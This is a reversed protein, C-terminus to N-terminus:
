LNDAAALEAEKEKESEVRELELDDKDEAICALLEAKFRDVWETHRSIRPDTKLSEWDGSEAAVQILGGQGKEVAGQWLEIAADEPSRGSKIAALFSEIYPGLPMVVKGEPTKVQAAPQSGIPAPAKAVAGAPEAVPSPAVAGAPAKEPVVAPASPPQGVGAQPSGAPAPSAPPLARRSGRGARAGLAAAAGPLVAGALATLVRDLTGSPEVAPGKLDDMLEKLDLMRELPDREDGKFLKAVVALSQADKLIGGSNQAAMMAFMAKVMESQQATAQARAAEVMAESRAARAEMIELLKAFDLGANAPPPTAVLAQPASIPDYTRSVARIIQGDANRFKITYLGGGKAKVVSEMAAPWLGLDYTGINALKGEDTAKYVAFSGEGDLEALVAEIMGSGPLPADEPPLEEEANLAARERRLKKLEAIAERESDIQARLDEADGLKASKAKQRGM